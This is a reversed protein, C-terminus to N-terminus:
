WHELLPLSGLWFDPGGRGAGSLSQRAAHPPQRCSMGQHMLCHHAGGDHGVVYYTYPLPTGCWLLSSEMNEAECVARHSLDVRPFSPRCRYTRNPGVTISIAPSM